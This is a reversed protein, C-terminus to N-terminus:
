QSLITGTIDTTYTGSCNDQCERCEKPRNCTSNCWCANCAKCHSCQQDFLTETFSQNRSDHLKIEKYHFDEFALKATVM